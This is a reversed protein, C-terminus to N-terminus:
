SDFTRKVGYGLGVAGVGVSIQRTFAKDKAVVLQENYIKDTASWAKTYSETLKDAQKNLKKVFGDKMVQKPKMGRIVQEDIGSLQGKLMKNNSDIGKAIGALESKNSLWEWVRSARSQDKQYKVSDKLAGFAMKDAYEGGYKEIGRWTQGLFESFGM